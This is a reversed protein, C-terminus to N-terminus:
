KEQVYDKTFHKPRIKRLYVDFKYEYNKFNHLFM